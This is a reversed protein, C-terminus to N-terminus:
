RGWKGQRYLKWIIMYVAADMVSDDISENKPEKPKNFSQLSVDLNFGMLNMLRSIKDWSRTMLGVEGTGLINAPSYDANKDLHVQYMANVIDFFARTQQPRALETVHTGVPIFDTSLLDTVALWGKARVPWEFDRNHFREFLIAYGNFAQINHPGDDILIDGRLLGKSHIEIYDPHTSGVRIAPLFGHKLLWRLKAGASGNPSSTAFVVHLGRRRLQDVGELAGEVPEVEDYLDPDELYDYIKTGCEPKVKDDMRWGGLDEPRLDDMYAENYRALWATELDAAVGDVDVFVTLQSM